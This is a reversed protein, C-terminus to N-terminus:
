CCPPQAQIRTVGGGWVGSTPDPLLRDCLIASLIGTLWCVAATNALNHIRLYVFEDTRYLIRKWPCAANVSSDIIHTAPQGSESNSKRLIDPMLGRFFHLTSILLLNFDEVGHM